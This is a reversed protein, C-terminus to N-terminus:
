SSINQTLASFVVTKRNTAQLYLLTYTAYIFHLFANNCRINLLLIYAIFFKKTQLTLAKDRKESVGNEASM